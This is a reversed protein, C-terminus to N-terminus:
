PCLDNVCGAATIKILPCGKEDTGRCARACCDRTIHFIETCRSIVPNNNVIVISGNCLEVSAEYVPCPITLEDGPGYTNCFTPGKPSLQYCITIKCTLAPDIQITYHDCACKIDAQARASSPMAWLALVVVLFAAARIITTCRTTM